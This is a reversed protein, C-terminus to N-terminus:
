GTPQDPGGGELDRTLENLLFVEVRDNEKLRNPDDGTDVPENEAAVSIRIRRHDIGLSILFDATQRGRACALEWHDRFASDAALPKRSSHGRVEIKQTKGGLVEAAIRLQRQSEDTLEATGDDFFVVGGITRQDGPRIIRVQPHEGVPARVKDGGNMTDARKARGQTALRALKSNRPRLDGPVKTAMSLEHGFQRQMSDVLAQFREQEKIESMSVLMIFFTLLLSMM